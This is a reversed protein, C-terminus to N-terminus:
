QHVLTDIALRSTPGAGWYYSVYFTLSSPDYHSNYGPANTAGGSSSVTVSNDANVQLVPNGIGVGTGDGWPQLSGFTVSTPGSTVLSMNQAPFHGTKVGDGARLTYGTLTYEGDYINKVGVNIMLHNWQEIPVSASQITIPLIYTNSLDLKTFDFHVYMSDLRKGAPITRNWGNIVTYVSDPMLLYNTGNAANYSNLFATDLAFTATVATSLTKPSALNIYYPIDVSTLSPTVLYAFTVPRNANSASLPLDVSAGVSAFDTYYPGNKLCSSMSFLAIVIGSFILIRNIKKIRKM